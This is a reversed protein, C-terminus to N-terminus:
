AAVGTPCSRASWTKAKAVRLENVLVTVRKPTESANWKKIM